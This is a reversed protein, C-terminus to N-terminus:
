PIIILRAGLVGATQGSITSRAKLIMTQAQTPPAFEASRYWLYSGSTTTTIRVLMGSGGHLEVEAHAGGSVGGATIDLYLKCATGWSPPNWHIHPSCNALVNSTTTYPTSLCLLPLHYEGHALHSLTVTREKIIRGNLPNPFNNESMHNVASKIREGWRRLYSANYESPPRETGLTGM